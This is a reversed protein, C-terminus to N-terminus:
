WARPRPYGKSPEQSRTGRGPDVATLSTVSPAMPSRVAMLSALEVNGPGVEVFHPSNPVMM